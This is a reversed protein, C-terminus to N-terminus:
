ATRRPEANRAQRLGSVEGAIACVSPDLADSVAAGPFAATYHHHFEARTLTPAQAALSRWQPHRRLRYSALADALSRGAVGARIAGSMTRSFRYLGYAPPTSAWGPTHRVCDVVAIRGGPRLLRRVHALYAAPDPGLHHLTNVSVVLDFTGEAEPTIEWLDGVRYRVQPHRERALEIMRPAADVALVDDYREALLGLFRGAGCGLDIARGGRAPLVRELWQRYRAHSLEAFKDYLEAIPDFTAETM